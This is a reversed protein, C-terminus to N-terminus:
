LLVRRCPICSELDGKILFSVQEWFSITLGVDGGGTRRRGMSNTVVIGSKMAMTRSVYACFIPVCKFGFNMDSKELITGALILPQSVRLKAGEKKPPPTPAAGPISSLPM